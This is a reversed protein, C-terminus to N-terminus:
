LRGREIVWRLVPWMAPIASPRRGAVFGAALAVLLGPISGRVAVARLHMKAEGPTLRSTM